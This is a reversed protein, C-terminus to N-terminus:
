RVVMTMYLKEMADVPTVALNVVISDTDNGAEITVDTNKFSQIINRNQLGMLYAIRDAKFLDRGAANNGAKGLYTREFTNETDTAIEDLTRMVRNKSFSQPKEATFKHLSNIDQEIVVRQGPRTTFVIQGADLAKITKENDLKPYAATADEVDFYTLSTAADASASIGAFFGTADKVDVNTGDSLTYGNVVTSIGEYNYTTDADTPIAGRVKRGENERLRKVAEVVLKNMNSSPEFGATTVVAYEENELADNLLSEVKKPETTAGGTLTGSVNTFATPKSSGEEVVKATIYDNGKFKDLENFKISQEDVLKTGFITSVTAANKDAPSVEVSVTIQNGKEGPYNATVTWPLGEKTLTAATGENPNLVLVKSAGKLTEKLATLSPDDLTTGLTKTFDSNAEVEIVGNKGWGLGKDRILLVRGLSSAAERQGNGVVNIYAGPRRKDQAKWTGGSM